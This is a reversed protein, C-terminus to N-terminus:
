DRDSETPRPDARNDGASLKTMSKDAKTIM